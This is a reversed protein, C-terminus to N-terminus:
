QAEHKIVKKEINYKSVDMGFSLKLREVLMDIETLSKKGFNRFKMLENRQLSVLDAFTEIDAAKLCNLARVSLEMDSLKTLLLHRMRLSEEDLENSVVEVPAELSIKEDSFLMFHHILIKAAEKLADKPHISGDTTIELNLKEYDTKQEVRWNEVFYKVNKIPTFIADIPILGFPADEIRNEEAPVYGRGKNIRLEITLAVSPEM